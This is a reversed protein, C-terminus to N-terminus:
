YRIEFGGSFNEDIPMHMIGTVVSAPSGEHLLAMFRELDQLELSACVEVTGDDLNRAFGSFGQAAAKESVSKRYYVGQVTGSVIFRYSQM